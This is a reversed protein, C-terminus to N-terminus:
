PWFGKRLTKFIPIPRKELIHLAFYEAEMLLDYSYRGPAIAASILPPNLSIQQVFSGLYGTERGQSGVTVIFLGSPIRGLAPGLQEESTM